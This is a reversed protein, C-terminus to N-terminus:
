LENNYRGLMELIMDIKNDQIQLHRHIDDIAGNVVEQLDTQGINENYNALGIVFSVIAMADMINQNFRNEGM